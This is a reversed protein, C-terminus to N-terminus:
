LVSKLTTGISTVKGTGRITNAQKTSWINLERFDFLPTTLFSLHPVLFKQKILLM